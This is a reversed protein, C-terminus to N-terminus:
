DPCLREDELHVVKGTHQQIWARIRHLAAKRHAAKHRLMATDARMLARSLPQDPNEACGLGFSLFLPPQGPADDQAAFHRQIKRLLEQGKEASCGALLVVFEDGGMRAVCDTLRLAQQLIQAARALLEDGVAHGLNDNILKLGTIDCSIACVPRIHNKEIREAELNCYTRSRLGTLVDNKVLEELKDRENQATTINTIFGVLHQARGGADRRTVCGRGFIWIWKGDARRMRYTSEYSDGYRPTAIIEEEASVIKDQDDPHLKSRWSNRHSPFEESTYGLMALYRPSYYITDSEVDWDWLGDGVANLAFHLLGDTKGGRVVTAREDRQLTGCLLTARGSLDRELVASHLRRRAYQGNAMRVRIIDDISEGLIKKEIFLRYRRLLLKRDAPHLNKTWADYELLIRSAPASEGLLMACAADLWVGRSPVSYLWLGTEPLGARRAKAELPPYAPLAVSVDYRGMVRSARGCASRSLVLLLEQVQLADFPYDCELSSGESGSLVGERQENLEPLAHPPIHALFDAMSAPAEALRLCHLAGKSLFLADSVIDWEWLPEQSDLPILCRAATANPM